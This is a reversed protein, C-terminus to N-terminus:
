FICKLMKPGWRARIRTCDVNEQYERIGSIREVGSEEIKVEIERRITRIEDKNQEIKAEIERRIM